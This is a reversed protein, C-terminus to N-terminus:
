KRRTVWSEKIQNLSEIDGEISKMYAAKFVGKKEVVTRTLILERRKKKKKCTVVFMDNDVEKCAFKYTVKKKGTAIAIKETMISRINTVWDISRDADYGEYYGMFYGGLNKMEKRKKKILPTKNNFQAESVFKSERVDSNTFLVNRVANAKDLTTLYKQVFEVKDEEDFHPINSRLYMSTIGDWTITISDNKDDFPHADIEHLISSKALNSEPLKKVRGDTIRVGSLGDYDLPIFGAISGKWYPWIPYDEEGHVVILPIQCAMPNIFRPDFGLESHARTLFVSYEIEALKLMEATFAAIGWANTEGSQLVEDPDIKKLKMSKLTINDQVYKLIADVTEENSKGKSLDEVVRNIKNNSSFYTRGYFYDEYEKTIDSWSELGVSRYGSIFSVTFVVRPAIVDLPKTNSLNSIPMLNAKRYVRNTFGHSYTVKSKGIGGYGKLKFDSSTHHSFHFSAEKVPIKFAMLLEGVWLQVSHTHEIHIDIVVGPTVNKLVVKGEKKYSRKLAGIDQPILQNDPGVVKINFKSLGKKNNNFYLTGYQTGKQSTIVLKQRHVYRYSYRNSMFIKKGYEVYKEDYELYAGYKEWETPDVPAGTTGQFNLPSHM